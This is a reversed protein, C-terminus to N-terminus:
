SETDADTDPEEDAEAERWLRVRFTDTRAEGEAGLSTVELQWLGHDASDQILVHTQNGRDGSTELTVRGVQEEFEDLVNIVVNHETGVPGSGPDVTAAGVAVTGTTSVLDLTLADGPEGDATIEIDVTQDDANFAVWGVNDDTPCGMLGALVLLRMLRM